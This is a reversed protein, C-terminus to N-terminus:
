VQVGGDLLSPQLPPLPAGGLQRLQLLPLGVDLSVGPPRRPLVARQHRRVHQHRRHCNSSAHSHVIDMLVTLGYSHATDILYKLEDPTGCRSSVAFFNTVHYGFSAYYAHEQVAMLQFPTTAWSRSAPIVEDAFEVYSNIKPEISSMGVHAEYIRVEKPSKPRAYKFQYQEEPPPDYYIGNFPIEDPAQVAFKIWAPIKDVPEQGEIELHIKVRTGHPIAPSGDAHNPMFVEFVGYDNKTMWVGEAGTSWGNFDGFLCAAKAGPAWERYTIGNADRTFGMKEYGRSFQELGGENQDIANRLGCYKDWRYQLHDRHQNLTGDMMCIGMGDTQIPPYQFTEFRNKPENIPGIEAGYIPSTNARTPTM